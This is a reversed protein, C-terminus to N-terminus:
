WGWAIPQLAAMTKGGAPNPNPWWQEGSGQRDVTFRLLDLELAVFIGQAQQGGGISWLQGVGTVQLGWPVGLTVAGQLPWQGYSGYGWSRWAAGADLAVGWSGRAFGGTALRLAAGLDTGLGVMTTGRYLVGVVFPALPSSGVGVSYTFAPSSDRSATDAKRQLAYGGGVALWSSVDARASSPTCASVVASACALARALGPARKGHPM